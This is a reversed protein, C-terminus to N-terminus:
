KKHAGPEDCDCDEQSYKPYSGKEKVKETSTGVVSEETLSPPSSVSSQFAGNKYTNITTEKVYQQENVELSYQGAAGNVLLNISFSVGKPINITEETLNGNSNFIEEGTENNTIILHEADGYTNFVIQRPKSSASYEKSLDETRDTSGLDDITEMGGTSVKTVIVKTINVVEESKIVRFCPKHAKYEGKRHKKFKIGIPSKKSIKHSRRFSIEIDFLNFVNITHIKKEELGELEVADVVRNGSFSYPTYHPYKRTLPDVAFFRGVRPDHMRYKYNISNGEGKVEDDKEQGQFGYCYDCLFRIRGYM